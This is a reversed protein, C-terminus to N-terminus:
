REELVVPVRGVLDGARRFAGAEPLIVSEPVASEEMSLRGAPRVAFRRDLEHARVSLLMRRIERTKAM